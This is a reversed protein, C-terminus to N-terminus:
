PQAPFTSPLRLVQGPRIAADRLRNVQELEFVGDRPDVGPAAYRAIAWLTDGPRVTVTRLAAVNGAATHGSADANAPAIALLAAVLLAALPLLILVVRGRRTLRLDGPRRVPRGRGGRVAACRAGDHVLRRRAPMARVGQDNARRTPRDVTGAQNSAWQSNTWRDGMTRNSTM